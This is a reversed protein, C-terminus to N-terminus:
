STVAALHPMAPTSMAASSAAHACGARGPACRGSRAATRRVSRAPSHRPRRRPSRSRACPPARRLSDLRDQTSQPKGVLRLAPDAGQREALLPADANGAGDGHLRAEQQHVLRRGAEVIRLAVVQLCDDAVDPALEIAADQQDLMAHRQHEAKRGCGPAAAHAARERDARGVLDAGVGLHAPRDRRPPPRAHQLTVPGRVDAVAVDDGQAADRELDGLALDDGDDARVAGALRGQQQGDGAHDRRLSSRDLKGAPYASGRCAAPLAPRPRATAKTGSPRCMKPDSLTASFM